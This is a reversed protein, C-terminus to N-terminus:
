FSYKKGNEIRFLGKRFNLIGNNECLTDRPICLLKDIGMGIVM